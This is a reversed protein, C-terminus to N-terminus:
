TQDRPVGVSSNFAPQHNPQWKQFITGNINTIELWGLQSMNKLTTAWGGVLSPKLINSPNNFFVYKKIYKTSFSMSGIGARLTGRILGVLTTPNSLVCERINVSAKSPEPKSNPSHWSSTKTTKPLQRLFLLQCEPMDPSILSIELLWICYRHRHIM